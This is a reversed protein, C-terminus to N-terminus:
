SIYPDPHKWAGFEKEGAELLASAQGVDKIGKYEDFTARLRLADRRWARRDMKWSLLHKLSKRYLRTVKQAHSLAQTAM